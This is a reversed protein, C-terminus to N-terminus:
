YNGIIHRTNRRIRLFMTRLFNNTSEMTSCLRFFFLLETQIELLRRTCFNINTDNNISSIRIKLYGCVNIVIIKFLKDYLDQKV